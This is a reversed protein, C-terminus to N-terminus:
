QGYVIEGGIMTLRVRTTLIDRAPIRMIDNSLLVLDALKGAELSGTDADAHAAYAADLTFARLAEERSVREGAMWGGAPNGSADQRTVAAYFGLLPNAEEVPFDSGAAIRAGSALLKRWVYAGEHMRADGIRAPVWPMDSTAHTPQMSAIIGLRAFRPIEAADLIQAHEIRMRL